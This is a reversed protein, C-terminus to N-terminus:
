GTRHHLRWAHQVVEIGAEFGRHVVEVASFESPSLGEDMRRKLAREATNLRELLADRERGDADDRLRRQIEFWPENGTTDTMKAQELM